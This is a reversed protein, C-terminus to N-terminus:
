WKMTPERYATPYIEALLLLSWQYCLLNTRGFNSKLKPREEQKPRKGDKSVAPEYRVLEEGEM